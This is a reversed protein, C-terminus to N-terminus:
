EARCGLVACCWTKAQGAVPQAWMRAASIDPCKGQGRRGGFQPRFGCRRIGINHEQQHARVCSSAASGRAGAAAHLLLLLLSPPPPPPPPAPACEAPSVRDAPMFAAAARTAVQPPSMHTRLAHRSEKRLPGTGAATREVGSAFLTELSRLPSRARAEAAPVRSLMSCRM